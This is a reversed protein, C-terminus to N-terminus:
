FGKNKTTAFGPIVQNAETDSVRITYEDWAKDLKIMAACREGSLSSTAVV